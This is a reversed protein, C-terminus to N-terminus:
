GLQLRDSRAVVPGDPETAVFVAQPSTSVWDPIDVTADLTGTGSTTAEGIVEYASGPAGIGIQLKTNVPLDSATVTASGGPALRASTVTLSAPGINGSVGVDQGLENLKNRVGPNQNMFNDVGSKLSQGLQDLGQVASQGLNRATSKITDGAHKAPNLHLTMGVRLDQSGSVSPNALLIRREPVDCRGAIRSLTDGREVQVTDGCANAGDQAFAATALPLVILAAAVARIM